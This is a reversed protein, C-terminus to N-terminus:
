KKVLIVTKRAGVHFIFWNYCRCRNIVFTLASLEASHLVRQEMAPHFSDKKTNETVEPFLKSQLIINESVFVPAPGDAASENADSSATM